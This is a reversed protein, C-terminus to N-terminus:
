YRERYRNGLKRFEKRRKRDFGMWRRNIKEGIGIWKKNRRGEKSQGNGGIGDKRGVEPWRRGKIRDYKRERGKTSEAARRSENM